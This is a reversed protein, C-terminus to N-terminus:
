FRENTKEKITDIFHAVGEDIEKLIVQHRNNLVTYMVMCTMAVILGFATTNMAEATGSALLSAKQSVDAAALSGFSTQLGLITGLLGMLTSVNALLSLYNIRRSIRPVEHIATKEVREMIRDPKAGTVYRDLATRFVVFMPSSRKAVVLRAAEPKGQELATIMKNVINYSNGRCYIFLYSGRELVVACAVAMVGLIVWMFSGGDNFMRIIMQIM